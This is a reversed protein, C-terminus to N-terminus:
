FKKAALLKLEEKKFARSGGFFRFESDTPREALEYKKAELTLTCMLDAIQFLKYNHPRVGQAFEVKCGVNAFSQHLLNTVPSQGCDYYVKLCGLSSLYARHEAIFDDLQNRLKSVIQLSSNIYKKDVCLCHYKFDVKRAFTVMRRYIRGRMKRTLYEYGKEKRILPGAHFVFAERDLGLEAISRDFDEILKSVDVRQDHFVMGVIYFRSSPDPHQFRGSEDVFVSLTTEDM